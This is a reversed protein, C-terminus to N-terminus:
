QYIESDYFSKEHSIKYLHRYSFQTVTWNVLNMTYITGTFPLFWIWSSNQLFCQNKLTVPNKWHCLQWLSNMFYLTLWFSVTFSKRTYFELLENHEDYPMHAWLCPHPPVPFRFYFSSKLWIIIKMQYNPRNWIFSISISLIYITNRLIWFTILM